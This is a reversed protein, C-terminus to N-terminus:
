LKMVSTFTYCYLITVEKQLMPQRVRLFMNNSNLICCQLTSQSLVVLCLLAWDYKYILTDLAGSRLRSTITGRPIIQYKERRLLSTLQM